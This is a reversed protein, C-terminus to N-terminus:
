IQFQRRCVRDIQFCRLNTRRSLTLGRETLARSFFDRGKVVQSKGENMLQEDSNAHMMRDLMTNYDMNEDLAINFQGATWRPIPTSRPTTRPTAVPSSMLSLTTPSIMGSFANVPSVSSYPFIQFFPLSNFCSIFHETFPFTSCHLSLQM